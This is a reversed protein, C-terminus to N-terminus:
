FDFEPMEVEVKPEENKKVKANQVGAAEYPTVQPPNNYKPKAHEYKPQRYKHLARQPLGQENPEFQYFDKTQPVFMLYQKPHKKTDKNKVWIVTRREDDPNKSDTKYIHYWWFAEHDADMCGKVSVISSKLDEKSSQVIIIIPIDLEKALKGLKSFMDSLRKENTVLDPDNNTIRLMSDLAVLKIGNVKHQYRIEAVIKNIDYVDDFIKIKKINGEWFGEEEQEEVNEDYHEKGFELSGFMVPYDRSVNEIIRTLTYSKGSEKLGSIFGLTGTNIGVNGKKDTFVTDIFPIYTEIRKRPPKTKREQRVVELSQTHGNDSIFSLDNISNEMYLKITEASAKEEIALKKIHSCMELYKRKQYEEKITEIDAYFLSEAMPLLSIIEIIISDSVEKQNVDNQINNINFPKNRKFYFYILEFIKQHATLYFMDAKIGTMFVKELNISSTYADILTSLVGREKALIYVNDM